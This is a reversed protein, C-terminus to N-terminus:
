FRLALGFGVNLAETDLDDKGVDDIKSYSIGARLMMTDTLMHDVGVGLSVGIANEAGATGDTRFLTPGANIYVLTSPDSPLAMGATLLLAAGSELKDGGPLTTRGFANPALLLEAGLVAQPTQQRYGVFIGGTAQSRSEGGSIELRGFGLALGGYTGTWDTTRPVELVQPGLDDALATMPLILSVVVAFTKSSFHM